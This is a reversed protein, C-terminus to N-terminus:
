PYMLKGVDNYPVDVVKGTHELQIEHQVGAGSIM